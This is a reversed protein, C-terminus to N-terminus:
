HIHCIKGTYEFEDFDKLDAITDQASVFSEQDVTSVSILHNRGSTNSLASKMSLSAGNDEQVHESTSSRYLHYKLPEEQFKKSSEFRRNKAKRNLISHEYIFMHEADDQLQYAGDLINELMRTFETEEPSTLTKQRKNNPKHANYAALADEWYGVVTELAEMGMLGLQQPTLPTGDVLTVSASSETDNFQSAKQLESWNYSSARRAKRVAARLTRTKQTNLAQRKRGFYRAAFYLAV